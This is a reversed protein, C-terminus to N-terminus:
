IRPEGVSNVTITRGPAATMQARHTIGRFQYTVDWYDATRRAPDSTCRQVDQQAVPNGFRDRGINSGIAAGAVVGGVTALDRGSGNGIQHGLIGGIVAGAIAGPMNAPAREQVVDGREIWCRQGSDGVVARTSLVEAQYLTENPRRRYDNAAYTQNPYLYVPEAAPQAVPAQEYVPYPVACGTLLVAGLASSLLALRTNM